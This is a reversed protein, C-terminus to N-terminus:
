DKFGVVEKPKMKIEKKEKFQKTKELELVIISDLMPLKAKGISNVPKYKPSQPM